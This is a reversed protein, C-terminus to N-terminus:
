LGLADAPMVHARRRSLRTLVKNGPHPLPFLLGAVGNGGLHASHAGTDVPAPFVEGHVVLQGLHNGFSKHLKVLLAQNVTALTQHVPIRHELAGHAIQLHLGGFGFALHVVNAVGKYIARLQDIAHRLVAHGNGGRTRFGHHSIAGQANMGFVVAVLMQYAFPHM